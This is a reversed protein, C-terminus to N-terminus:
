RWLRRWGIGVAFGVRCHHWKASFARILPLGNPSSVPKWCWSELFCLRNLCQRQRILSLSAVKRRFARKTSEEEGSCFTLFRKSTSSWFPNAGRRRFKSISGRIGQSYEIMPRIQRTSGPLTQPQYFYLYLTSHCKYIIFSVSAVLLVNWVHRFEYIETSFEM